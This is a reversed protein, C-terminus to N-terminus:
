VFIVGNTYFIWVKIKILVVLGALLQHGELEENNAQMIEKCVNHTFNHNVFGEEETLWYGHKKIHEFIFGINGFSVIGSDIWFVNEIESHEFVYRICWPKWAFQNPTLFEPFNVRIYHTYQLFM